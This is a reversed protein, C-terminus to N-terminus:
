NLQSFSLRNGKRHFEDYKTNEISRCFASQESRPNNWDIQNQAMELYFHINLKYAYEADFQLNKKSTKSTWDIYQNWM